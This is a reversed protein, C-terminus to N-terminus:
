PHLGLIVAPAIPKGQDDVATWHSQWYPNEIDDSQHFTVQVRSTLWRPVDNDTRVLGTGPHSHWVVARFGRPSDPFIAATTLLLRNPPDIRFRVGHPGPPIAAALDQLLVQQAAAIERTASATALVQRQLRLQSTQWAWVPVLLLGAIVLSVLVEVLTLASRNGTNYTAAPSFPDVPTM